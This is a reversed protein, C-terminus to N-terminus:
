AHWEQLTIPPTPALRLSEEIGEVAAVFGQLVTTVPLGRLTAAARIRLADANPDAGTGATNVVWQLTGERLLDLANPSGEGLRFCANPRLGAQWLATATGRTAFFRYGLAALRKAAAVGAPKDADALALLLTLLILM